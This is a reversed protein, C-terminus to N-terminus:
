SQGGKQLAGTKWFNLDDIVWDIAIDYYKLNPDCFQEAEKPGQSSYQTHYTKNMWISDNKLSSIFTWFKSCDTIEFIAFFNAFQLMGSIFIMSKSFILIIFIEIEIM